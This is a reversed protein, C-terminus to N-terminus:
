NAHQKETDESNTDLYKSIFDDVALWYLFPDKFMSRNHHAGEIVLMEKPGAAAEYNQELMWYPVFGDATGHIFLTPIKSKKLQEISSAEKFSYGALRKSTKNAIVLWPFKGLGFVKKLQYKFIDWVSTYGCDEVAVKVQPPLEWGTTMMVTAGGMSGGYLVIKADPHQNVIRNIWDVMDMSDLWGMGLFEGESRGSGRLDPLFVNYGLDHFHRAATGHRLGNGGFGHVVIAWLDTKEEAPLIRAMLKTGDPAVMTWDEFEQEALWADNEQQVQKTDASEATENTLFVRDKPVNSKVAVDFATLTILYISAAAGIGIVSLVFAWVPMGNEIERELRSRRLLASWLLVCTFMGM